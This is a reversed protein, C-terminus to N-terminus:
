AAQRMAKRERTSTGGWIGEVGELGAFALCEGPASAACPWRMPEVNASLADPPGLLPFGGTPRSVLV